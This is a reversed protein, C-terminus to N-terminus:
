RRRRRQRFWMNGATLMLVWAIIFLGGAIARSGLVGAACGAAVVLVIVWWVQVISLKRV